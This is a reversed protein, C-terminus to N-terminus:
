GHEALEKQVARMILQYTLLGDGSFSTTYPIAYAIRGDKAIVLTVPYSKIGLAIAAQRGGPVIPYRVILGGSHLVTEGRLNKQSIRGLGVEDEAFVSTLFFDRKKSAMFVENLAPLEKICAACGSIWFNLVHVKGKSLPFPKEQRLVTLERVEFVNQGVLHRFPQITASLIQDLQAPSSLIEKRSDAGLHKNIGQSLQILEAEMSHPLIEIKRKIADNEIYVLVALNNYLSTQYFLGDNDVFVNRKDLIDMGFALRISKRSRATLVFSIANTDTSLMFKRYRDLCPPCIDVPIILVAFTSKWDLGVSDFYLDIEDATESQSKTTCQSLALFFVLTSFAIAQNVSIAKRM